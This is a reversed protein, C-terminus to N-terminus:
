LISGQGNSQPPKANEDGINDPTEQEEQKGNNSATDRLRPDEKGPPPLPGGKEDPDELLVPDLNGGSRFDDLQIVDEDKKFRQLFYNMIASSVPLYKRSKRIVSKRWMDPVWAPINWPCFESDLAPSRKKVEEIEDKDMFEFYQGGDKFRWICYVHTMNGRSGDLRPKHIISENDGYEVYFQDKEHVVQSFLAKLIGANATMAIYGRYGVMFTCENAKINKNWRPILYCEGVDPSISLDLYLSRLVSGLLSAVTCKKLEPTRTTILSVAGVVRDIPINRAATSLQHSYHDKLFETIEANSQGAFTQPVKIGSQRQKVKELASQKSM